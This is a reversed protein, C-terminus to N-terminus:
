REALARPSARTLGWAVYLPLFRPLMLRTFGPSGVFQVTAAAVPRWDPTLVFTQTQWIRGRPDTGTVSARPGLALLPLGHAASALTLSLRNSVGCEGQRLAGL